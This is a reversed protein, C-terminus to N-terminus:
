KNPTTNRLRWPVHMSLRPSTSLFLYLSGRSLIYEVVTNINLRVAGLFLPSVLLLYVCFVLVFIGFRFFPCSTKKRQQQRRPAIEEVWKSRAYVFQWSRVHPIGEPWKFPLFVDM